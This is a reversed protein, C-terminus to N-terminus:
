QGPAGARGDSVIMQAVWRRYEAGYAPGKFLDFRRHTAIIAKLHRAYEECEAAIVRPHVGFNAALKAIMEDATVPEDDGDRGQLADDDEFEHMGDSM